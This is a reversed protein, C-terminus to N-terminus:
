AIAVLIISFNLMGCRVRDIFFTRAVAPSDLSAASSFLNISLILKLMLQIHWKSCVFYTPRISNAAQRPIKLKKFYEKVAEFKECNLTMGPTHYHLLLPM